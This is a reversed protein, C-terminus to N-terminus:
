GPDMVDYGVDGANLLEASRASFVGKLRMLDTLLEDAAQKEALLEASRSAAAKQTALIQVCRAFTVLNQDKAVRSSLLYPLHSALLWVREANIPLARILDAERFSLLQELTTPPAAMLSPPKNPVFSQYYQQLYNVATHQPSAIHICHTVANVLADFTTFNEPFSPIQGGDQSRMEGCWTRLQLDSAITDDRNPGAYAIALNKSVFRHLSNWVDLINRGYIYRQYKAESLTAQDTPFGRRALDAPVYRGQWDYNSYHYRIFTLVDDEKMGAIKNIVSPVLTSRAGANVSLTRIWHTSVLRYVPHQHEFSRQAAVITAEEILHTETLHVSIEHKTWDAVQVCSKAYRWPWNSHEEPDASSVRNNFIVVSHKMQGKYDVVISIPHLAGGNELKFLCVSAGLYREAGDFSHEEHDADSILDKLRHLWSADETSSISDTDSLGLADRFGSYDQVLLDSPEASDLLASIETKKQHEAANKFEELLQRSVTAITTPNTGTFQQQAFIRDSWWDNRDGVNPDVYVDKKEARLEQNRLTLGDLTDSEPDAHVFDVVSDPILSTILTSTDQLRSREFLKFFGM